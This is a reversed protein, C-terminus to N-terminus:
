GGMPRRARVCDVYCVHIVACRFEVPSAVNKGLTRPGLRFGHNEGRCRPARYSQADGSATAHEPAREASRTTQAHGYRIVQTHRNCATNRPCPFVECRLAPSRCGRARARALRATRRHARTTTPPSTLSSVAVYRACRSRMWSPSQEAMAASAHADIGLLLGGGPLSSGDRSSRRSTVRTGHKLM